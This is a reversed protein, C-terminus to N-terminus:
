ENELARQLASNLEVIKLQRHPEDPIPRQDAYLGLRRVVLLARVPDVFAELAVMYPNEIKM